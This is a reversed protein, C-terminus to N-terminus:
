KRIKEPHCPVASAYLYSDKIAKRHQQDFIGELASEVEQIRKKFRMSDIAWHGGREYREVEFVQLTNSFHVKKETCQHM